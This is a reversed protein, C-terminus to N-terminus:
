NLNINWLYTHKDKNIKYVYVKKIFEKSNVKQKLFNEVFKNKKSLNTISAITLHPKWNAGVFPYGYKIYNKQMWSFKFKVKTSNSRFKSFSKLLTSQLTKLFSNKIIKFYITQGQTIPDNLFLGTKNILLINKSSKKVLIKKLKNKKKLINKSVNMTFLTCHPLHSLYPQNGFNKKVIKKLNLIKNKIKKKPIIFVAIKIM